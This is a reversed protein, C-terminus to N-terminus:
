NFRRIATLIAGFIMAHAALERLYIWINGQRFASGGQAIPNIIDVLIIYVLWICIFILLILDTIGFEFGFLEILLMVGAVIACVSFFAGLAAAFNGRGFLTNIVGILEGKDGYFGLVGNVLLYLAVSIHLVYVGISRNM